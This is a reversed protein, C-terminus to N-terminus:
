ISVNPSPTLFLDVLILKFHCIIRNKVMFNLFYDATPAWSWNMKITIFTNVLELNKLYKL